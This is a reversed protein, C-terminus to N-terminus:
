QLALTTCDAGGGVSSVHDSIFTSGGHVYLCTKDKPIFCGEHLLFCFMEQVHSGQLYLDTEM